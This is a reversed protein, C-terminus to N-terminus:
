DDASPRSVKSLVGSRELFETVHERARGVLPDGHGTLLADYAIDRAHFRAVSAHAEAVSASFTVYPLSLGPPKIMPVATLLADGTFLAGTEAHLFFVSGDTHGPVGHVDLGGVSDGEELAVDVATRAPLVNEGRALWRALRTGDRAPLTPAPRTGDLVEADARHAYIRVGHRRLFSANGAHDSHRHTLLVGTLDAPRLGLRRLEFLLMPREAFHGTDVLWRNGKGGDLLFM